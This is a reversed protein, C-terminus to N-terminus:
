RRGSSRRPRPTAALQGVIAKLYGGEPFGVPHDIAHATREAVALERGAAAVGRRVADLHEDASVRSSCSAMVLTGDPATVAAALHALRSYARIAGSVQSAKSAFSPPDVVVLDFTRRADALRVLEDMADATASTHRCAAVAPRHVNALMARRGAEIAPASIDVSHVETAGGAAAHVSFGGTCSYVDLVRRGQALRGVLQRNDRQDLFYGTKHGAAVDANMVLGHELFEVPESPISGVLAHGEGFHSPRDPDRQVLRSMRLVLCAPDFRAAVAEVVDDLHAFWAASYLKLVLVDGYRDLVLGPLADNEGHVARYGTTHPDDILPRRREDAAAVQAVWWDRDITAPAGHHVVKVRIPSAPDYLGIALFRRKSDFVVALDGSRGDHPSISTISRDFLWPHGSRVQREADNTIRVALRRRV